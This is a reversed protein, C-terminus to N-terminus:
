RAFRTAAKWSVSVDGVTRSAIVVVSTTSQVDQRKAVSAQAKTNWVFAEVSHGIRATILRASKAVATRRASAAVATLKQATKQSVNRGAVTRSVVVVVLIEDQAARTSVFGVAATRKVIGSVISM